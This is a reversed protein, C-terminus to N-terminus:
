TTGEVEDALQFNLDDVNPKDNKETTEASNEMTLENTETIQAVSEDHYLQDYMQQYYANPDAYYDEYNNPTEEIQFHPRNTYNIQRSRVSSDVEM